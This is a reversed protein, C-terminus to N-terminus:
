LKIVGAQVLFAVNDELHWDEYVKGNRVHLIDIAFFRIANGTAPHGNTPGTNHGTYIQRCVIKDKTIILDEISCKLDPVSKRFNKSAFPIGQYGQPRGKPLTNDKFDESVAQKLYYEKGTNWFAYLMRGTHILQDAEAKSLSKDVTISKPVPVDGPAEQASSRIITLSLLGAFALQAYIKYNEM